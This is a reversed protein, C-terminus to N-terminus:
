RSNQDTRGAAIQAMHANQVAVFRWDDAAQGSWAEGSQASTYYAISDISNVGTERWVRIDDPSWGAGLVHIWADPIHARIVACLTRWVPLPKEAAYLAPNSFAIVPRDRYRPINSLYESYFQVQRRVDYADVTRRRSSQIVPVVPASRWAAYNAMTRRPNLYEDPAVCLVREGAYRAYHAALAAIYEDDMKRRAMALGFAGSDLIVFGSGDPPEPEVPYAYLRSYHLLQGRLPQPVPCVYIM